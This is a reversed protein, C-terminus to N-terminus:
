GNHFKLVDEGYVQVSGEPDIRYVPVGDHMAIGITMKTGFSPHSDSPTAILADSHDVIVQNRKAYELEPM